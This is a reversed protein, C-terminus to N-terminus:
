IKKSKKYAGGSVVVASHGSPDIYSIPNGGCYGYLKGSRYTDQSLFNGDDSNYYRANLYYLGTLEDYVGGTYCIENDVESEFSSIKGKDILTEM